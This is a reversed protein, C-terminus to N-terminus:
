PQFALTCCNPLAGCPSPPAARRGALAAWGTTALDPLHKALLHEISPEASVCMSARGQGARGQGAREWARSRVEQVMWLQQHLKGQGMHGSRKWDEEAWGDPMLARSREVSGEWAPAAQLAPNHLPKLMVYWTMVCACCPSAHCLSPCPRRQACVCSPHAAEAAGKRRWCLGPARECAACGRTLTGM